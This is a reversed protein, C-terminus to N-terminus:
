IQGMKKIPEASSTSIPFEFNVISYDHQSTVPLIEGLLNEYKNQLLYNTVRNKDCYDGAILIRM